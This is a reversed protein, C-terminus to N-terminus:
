YIYSSFSFLELLIPCILNKTAHGHTIVQKNYLLIHLKTHCIRLTLSLMEFCWSLLKSILISAILFFYNNLQLFINYYRQHQILVKSRVTSTTLRPFRGSPLNHVHYTQREHKQGGTCKRKENWCGTHHNSSILWIKCDYVQLFQVM